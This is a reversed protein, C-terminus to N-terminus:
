KGVVKKGDKRIAEAITNFRDNLDEPRLPIPSIAPDVGHALLQLQVMEEIRDTGFAQGIVAVDIDSWEHRQERATSGFVYMEEVPIDGAQLVQFYKEMTETISKNMIIVHRPNIKNVAVM